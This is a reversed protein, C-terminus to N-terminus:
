APEYVRRGGLGHAVLLGARELSEFAQRAKQRGLGAAPDRVFAAITSGGARAVAALVRSEAATAPRPRREARMAAVVAPSAERNSAGTRVLVEDAGAAPDRAVAHPRGSSLPVSCVVVAGAETRLVETRVAVPPVVARAALARLTEAAQSPRAVGRIRGGDAIGVLLLGGRANAFACITRAARGDASLGEKFEVQRGEGAELIRALEDRDVITM